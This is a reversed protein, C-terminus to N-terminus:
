KEKVIKNVNRVGVKDIRIEPQKETDIFYKGSKRGVYNWKYDKGGIHSYHVAGGHADSYKYKILDTYTDDNM